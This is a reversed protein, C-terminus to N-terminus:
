AMPDPRDARRGAAWDYIELIRAAKRDWTFAADVRARAARGMAALPAPDRVLGEFVARLSAVIAERSGLPVPIGWEPEVLEGPGAYDIVIPPVGLAMAELVVGGGFERISPLVMADCGAMVGQVDRHDLWGHFTVADTAGLRAAQEELPARMQGDGIIELRM